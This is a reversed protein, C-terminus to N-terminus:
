RPIVHNIGPIKLMSWVLLVAIAGLASNIFINDGSLTFFSIACVAVGHLIYATLSHTGIPILIWNLFRNIFVQLRIFILLLGTFWLVAMAARFISIVDKEFLPKTAAAFHPMLHPYFTEITALAMTALTTAVLTASLTRRTKRSLKKWWGTITELYYGAITAIFFLFQWQLPESQLAWGLVLLGFSIIGVLWAKSQRFLWVALPSAILFLAYLKLFHVWVYTYDLIVARHILELWQGKEIPMGPAGGQLPIYWIISTYVITGIIAWIYLLLGRGVLKKSIEGLSQQRNKFGRVYGVLLGSILVFGEAATVWLLAKGTFAGWISPWRSLHDIIIVVIFFGRLQDLVHFRPKKNTVSM